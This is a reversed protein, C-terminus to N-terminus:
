PVTYEALAGPRIRPVASKSALGLQCLLLLLKRSLGSPARPIYVSHTSMQVQCSVIRVFCFVSSLQSSIIGLVEVFLEPEPDTSCGNRM